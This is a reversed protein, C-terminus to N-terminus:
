ERVYTMEWQQRLKQITRHLMTGVNSESLNLVAAIARNTLEAGYKLAIIEQEHSPLQSLLYYLRQADQKKQVEAEVSFEAPLTGLYELSLPARYQERLYDNAINRGIQFLWAEFAGLDRRYKERFRWARMWTQATLDQATDSDGTRYRFFNYLRPLQEWYITEWDVADTNSSKRM